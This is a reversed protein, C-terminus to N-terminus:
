DLNLHHSLIFRTILFYIVALSAYLITESVLLAQINAAGENLLARFTFSGILISKMVGTVADMVANILVIMGVAALAKHKQVISSGFTIAMFLMLCSSLASAVGHLCLLVLTGAGDFASYLFSFLEGFVSRVDEGVGASTVGVGLIASGAAFLTLLCLLLWVATNALKSLLIQTSTVPLTFTLYAEDSVTSRYYGVFLMVTMVVAAAMLALAVLFVGGMSFFMLTEELPANTTIEFTAENGASGVTTAAGICGLIAAAVIAILIPVGFRASSKFDKKFLKLFM